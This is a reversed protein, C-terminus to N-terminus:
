PALERPEFWHLLRPMTPCEDGLRYAAIVAQAAREAAAPDRAHVVALADGAAVRARRGLVADLGVAHDIAAEPRLRGGGLAVVAMGLARVDIAQVVGSRPAAASLQVPARPLHADPQELLDAPGGLGAVMRAFREAAAGSDLAQRLRCEAEAPNGALGGLCLMEAALGLSLARLRPCSPRGCLLDLAGRLELANGAAHGLVQGMDSLAVRARLGVGDAVQLLLGALAAAAGAQALQAGSGTKVDLVLAQAGGALKKSLISAVMLEAVDVTATVDRVAYLRRDAPVLRADQGVIACGAERVVRRLRTQGPRAQYGALSELKDLTGGTHGLGRGSLMPVFGGCAAVLPAVVLSVCDGVGGTSHKDLAPGPLDDWRLSIGSDRMALTFDTCERVSMGRWAVAMALAAVQAECWDGSAIGAAVEQLVEAGLAAGDRKSRILDAATASV